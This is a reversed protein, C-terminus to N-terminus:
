PAVIELPRMIVTSGDPLTLRQQTASNYLGIAIQYSGTPLEASISLEHPDVVYEGVVWSTTPRQWRAPIQDNGTIFRGEADLLQVFATYNESTESQALWVLHVPLPQGAVTETTLNIGFLHALPSFEASIMQEVAPPTMMHEPATVTITGLTLRREETIIDLQYVGSALSPPVRLLPLGRWTDGVHMTDTPDSAFLSVTQEAAAQENSLALTLQPLGTIPQSANWILELPLPDGTQYSGDIPQYALLNLGNSLTFDASTLSAFSEPDASARARLLDIEGLVYRSGAPNNNEDLWDVPQSPTDFPFISAELRYVGPPTGADVDLQYVDKAYQDSAWRTTPIDAVHIKLGGGVREGQADLLLLNIGYEREIPQLAQWYLTVEPLSDAPTPDPLEVALLKLQSANARNRVDTINHVQQGDFRTRTAFWNDVISVRLLLLLLLTAPLWYSTHTPSIQQTSIQKGHTDHQSIAAISLLLLTLASIASATRRLPTSGFWLHLEHEGAPLKLTILGHPWSSEIAIPQGNLTAQWGAFNFTNFTIEASEEALILMEHRLPTHQEQTVTVANTEYRPQNRANEASDWAVLEAVDLPLYEGTTTTGILGYDIEYTVSGALDLPPAPQRESISWVMSWGLLLVVLLSGTSAMNNIRQRLVDAGIGALVAAFLTVVGLFRLPFQILRLQPVAEWIFTSLSWMMLLRIALAFVALCILPAITKASERRQFLRGISFIALLLVPLSLVDPVVLNLQRADFYTPWVILDRWSTVFHDVYAFQMTIARGIQVLASEGIAPLWYFATLTLTLCMPRIAGWWRGQQHYVWLAYLGLFPMALLAVVHHTLMVGSIALVVWVEDRRKQSSAARGLLWFCLPLLANSWFQPNGGRVAIEYHFYPSAAFAVAAILGAWRSVLQRLWLYSGAVAAAIAAIWSLKYSVVISLGLWNWLGAFYYTAPAYYNFLPFGYGLALDPQWRAFIIGQAWMERLQVQRYLHFRTDIGIPLGKGLLPASVFLTLLILAVVDQGSPTRLKTTLRDILPHM